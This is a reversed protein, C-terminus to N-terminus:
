VKEVKSLFDFWQNLVTEKSFEQEFKQRGAMAIKNSFEPSDLLKQISRALLREDELPSLLGNEGDTILEVPGQSALSAVPKTAAFAELVINGLPEHRSSCVFVDCAGLLQSIDTVWGPMHVRDSVNLSDALDQLKAREEGEGAILLHADKLYPMAKILIDFGKNTHLRGLALLFPAQSPIYESRKPIVNPFDRAFNPVYHAREKPWGQEILWKVIGKTNGVLHDCNKYYKLDYFGGLRGVSVWDGVPMFAAARNMWAVSVRPSFDTLLQKLKRGTLFDIKGGFSLERPRLGVQQLLRLREPNKRIIPLINLGQEHQAVCLREYFLEAGGNAAGAMVHAIRLDSM